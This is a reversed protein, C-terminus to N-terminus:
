PDARAAHILRHAAEDYVCAGALATFAREYVAVDDPKKIRLQATMGDVRVEATDYLWFNEPPMVPPRATGPLIGLRVNAHGHTYRDLRDLQDNMDAQSVMPTHLAQEGLLFVFRRPGTLADQQAMRAAVARELDDPIGRFGIVTALHARAYKETQLLGPMASHQWVRLRTTREYLGVFTEQLRGLGTRELRRWETCLADLAHVQAVLAPIEADAGCATAWARVDEVTPSQAGSEIKSVRAKRGAWGMLGALREGTMGRGDVTADARLARLRAALSRRAEEIERNAM